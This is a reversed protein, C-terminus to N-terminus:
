GDAQGDAPDCEAPAPTGLPDGGQNRGCEPCNDAPDHGAMRYGCGICVDHGNARMARRMPAIYLHGYVFASLCWLPVVIVLLGLMFPVNRGGLGMTDLVWPLLGFAALAPVVQYLLTWKWFRGAPTHTAHAEMSLRMQEAHGLERYAPDAFNGILWRLKM